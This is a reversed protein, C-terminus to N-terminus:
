TQDNEKEKDLDGCWEDIVPANRRFVRNFTKTRMPKLVIPKAKKCTEYSHRLEKHKRCYIITCDGTCDRECSDCMSKHHQCHGCSYYGLSELYPSRVGLLKRIKNMLRNM